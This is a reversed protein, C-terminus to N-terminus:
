VMMYLAFVVILYTILTVSKLFFDLSICFYKLKRLKIWLCGNEDADAHIVEFFYGFYLSDREKKIYFKLTWDFVNSFM